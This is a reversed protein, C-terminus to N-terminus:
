TNRLRVASKREMEIAANATAMPLNERPSMPNVGIQKATKKKIMLTFNKRSSLRGCKDEWTKADIRRPPLDDTETPLEWVGWGFLVIDLVDLKRHLESHDAIWSQM